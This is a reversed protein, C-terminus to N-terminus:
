LVVKNNTSYDQPWIDLLYKVTEIHLRMSGAEGEGHEGDQHLVFIPGFCVALNSTTMKNEAQQLAVRKLHNFLFVVTGQQWPYLKAVFENVVELSDSDADQTTDKTLAQKAADYAQKSLLPEPLERLYDRYATYFLFLVLNLSLKGTIAHIEPVNVPSLDILYPHREFEQRLQQKKKASGCLRYIGTVDMGRNEVESVCRSVLMPISTETAAGRALVEKLSRGFLYSKSSNDPQAKCYSVEIYLIGRPELKLACKHSQPGEASRNLINTLRVTGTFCLRHRINPDWHYIMCVLSVVGNTVVMDFTEDWDFNIAGTRIVTKAQKVNDLQITCYLDRLSTRSSKLGHGCFIKLKMSGEQMGETNTTRDYEPRYLVFDETKLKMPTRILLPLDRLYSYASIASSHGGSSIGSSQPESTYPPLLPLTSQQLMADVNYASEMNHIADNLLQEQRFLEGKYGDLENGDRTTQDSNPVTTSTESTHEFKKLWEQMEPSFSPPKSSHHCSDNMAVRTSKNFEGPKWQSDQKAGHIIMHQYKPLLESDSNYSDNGNLSPHRNGLSSGKSYGGKKMSSFRPVPGSEHECDSTYLVTKPKAYVPEPPLQYLNHTVSIAPNRVSPQPVPLEIVREGRLSHESSLGSDNSGETNIDVPVIHHKGYETDDSLQKQIYTPKFDNYDCGSNRLSPRQTKITLILKRPISMLVVVDDLNTRTVNVSNIMQIEDGVKLLGNQEVISNEAIRSIFVGKKANKGNGERIYFGLTQGPRKLVEVTHITINDNVVEVNKIGMEIDDGKKRRNKRGLSPTNSRDSGTSNRSSSSDNRLRVQGLSSSLPAMAAETPTGNEKSTESHKNKKKRRLSMAREGIFSKPKKGSGHQKHLVALT